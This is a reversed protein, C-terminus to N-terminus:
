RGAGPAGHLTATRLNRDDGRLLEPALDFVGSWYSRSFAPVCTKNANLSQM